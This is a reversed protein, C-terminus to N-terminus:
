NMLILTEYLFVNCNNEISSFTRALSRPYVQFIDRILFNSIEKYM